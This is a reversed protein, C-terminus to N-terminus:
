KNQNQLYELEIENLSNLGFENIKDLILDMSLSNELFKQFDEDDIKIKGWLFLVTVDNIIFKIEYKYFLYKLKELVDNECLLYSTIFSNELVDFVVLQDNLLETIKKDEEDFSFFKKQHTENTLDTKIQFVKM